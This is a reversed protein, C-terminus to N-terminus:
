SAYSARRVRAAGMRLTKVSLVLLSAVSNVPALVWALWGEGLTHIKLWVQLFAQQALDDALTADGCCRRMLNRVWSQWRRVLEEFASRDGNRALVAM